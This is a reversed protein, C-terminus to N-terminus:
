NLPIYSGWYNGWIKLGSLIHAMQELAKQTDPSLLDIEYVLLDPMWQHHIKM